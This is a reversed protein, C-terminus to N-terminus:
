IGTGIRRRRQTAWVSSVLVTTIPNTAVVYTRDASWQAAVRGVPILDQVVEVTAAGWTALQTLLTSNIQGGSTNAGEAFGGIYNRARNPKVTGTKFVVLAAVQYPMPDNVSTGAVSGLTPTYPEESYGPADVRRATMGYYTWGTHFSAKMADFAARWEDCALQGFTQDFSGLKEYYAVNRLEQNGLRMQAVVQLIAM